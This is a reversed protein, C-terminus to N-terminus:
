VAERCLDTEGSPYVDNRAIAWAIREEVRMRIATLRSQRRAHRHYLALWEAETVNALLGALQKFRHRSM